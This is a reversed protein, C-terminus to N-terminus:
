YSYASLITSTILSNRLLVRLLSFYIEYFHSLPLRSIHLATLLQLVCMISPMPLSTDRKFQCCCLITPSWNDCRVNLSIMRLRAFLICMLCVLPFFHWIHSVFKTEAASLRRKIHCGRGPLTTTAREGPRRSSSPEIGPRTLHFVNFNLTTAQYVKNWDRYSQLITLQSKFCLDSM